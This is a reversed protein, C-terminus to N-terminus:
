KHRCNNMTHEGDSFSNMVFFLDIRAYRSSFKTFIATLKKQIGASNLFVVPKIEKELDIFFFTELHDFMNAYNLTTDNYTESKM